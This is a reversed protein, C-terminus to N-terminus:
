TRLASQECWGAATEVDVIVGVFRHWLGQSALPLSTVLMCYIILLEKRGLNWRAKLLQLLLAISLVALFLGVAGVPPSSSSLSGANLLLEQVIIWFSGVVLLVAGISIARVASFRESQGTTPM